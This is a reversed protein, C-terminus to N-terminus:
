KTFIEIHQENDFEINDSLLVLSDIVNKSFYELEVNPFITKYGCNKSVYHNERTYKLKLTDTLGSEFLFIYMLSDRNVDFLLTIIKEDSAPFINPYIYENEPNESIIDGGDKNGYIKMDKPPSVLIVNGLNDIDSFGVKLTPTIPETCIGTSECSSLIAIIGFLLLLSLKKIM